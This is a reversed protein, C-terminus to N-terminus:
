VANYFRAFVWSLVYFLVYSQLLGFLFTWDTFSFSIPYQEIIFSPDYSSFWVFLGYFMLVIISMMGAAHGLAYPRLDGSKLSSQTHSTHSSHHVVRNKM